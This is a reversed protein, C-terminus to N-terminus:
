SKRLRKQPMIRFTGPSQAYHCNCCGGVNKDAPWNFHMCTAFEGKPVGLATLSAQATHCMTKAMSDFGFIM